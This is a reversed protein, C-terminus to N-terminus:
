EVQGRLEGDPYTTSHVNLYWLGNLLDDEEQDTLARTQGSITGSSGSSGSGPDYGSTGTLPLGIVVPANQTTTAPGHFHMGVTQDSANGLTWTVVYSIRRTDMNYVADLEGTGTTTVPPTQVEAAGTLAINDFRVENDPLDVGGDDDDDCSSVVFVLSLLLSVVLWYNKFLKM